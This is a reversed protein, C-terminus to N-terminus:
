ANSSKRHPQSPGHLGDCPSISQPRRRRESRTQNPELTRTPGAMPPCQCSGSIVDSFIIVFLQEYAENEGYHYESPRFLNESM